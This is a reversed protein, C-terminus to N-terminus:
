PTDSTFLGKLIENDRQGDSTLFELARESEEESLSQFKKLSEIALYNAKLVRFLAEQPPIGEGVFTDTMEDIWESSGSKANARPDAETPVRPSGADFVGRSELMLSLAYTADEVMDPWPKTM